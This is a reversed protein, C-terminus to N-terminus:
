VRMAKHLNAMISERCSNPIVVREGKMVLDGDISLEDRFDWYTCAIRLVHRWKEPWSNLTLRHVTSLIPDRQTEEATKTLWSRSFTEISIADVCLNLQNESNNARLPLHSLTDALLMEKGPWYMIVMDHQQLHLLMRQLWAPASILNIMSIMKLPKHDTKVIFLKGYVYMHFKGCRFIIALLERKINAYRTETDM